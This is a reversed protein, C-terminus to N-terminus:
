IPRCERRRASESRQSGALMTHENGALYRGLPLRYFVVFGIFQVGANLTGASSGARDAAISMVAMWLVSGFLM